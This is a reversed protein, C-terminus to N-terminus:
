KNNLESPIPGHMKKFAMIFPWMSLLVVTNLCLVDIDEHTAICSVESRERREDIMSWEHCCICEIDSLHESTCFGCECWMEASMKSRGALAGARVTDDVSPEEDESSGNAESQDDEGEEYVPDYVFPLIDSNDAMIGIIDVM